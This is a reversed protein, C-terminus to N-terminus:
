TTKDRDQLRDPASCGRALTARTALNKSWCDRGRRTSVLALPPRGRFLRKPGTIVEGNYCPLERGLGYVQVYPRRPVTRPQINAVDAGLLRSPRADPTYLCRMSSDIELVRSVVDQETTRTGGSRSGKAQPPASREKPFECPHLGNEPAGVGKPCKGADPSFLAENGVDEFRFCSLLPRNPDLGAFFCDCIGSNKTENSSM